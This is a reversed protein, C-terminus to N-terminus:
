LIKWNYYLKYYLEKLIVLLYNGANINNNSVKKKKDRFAVCTKPHFISTKDSLNSIRLSQTRVM